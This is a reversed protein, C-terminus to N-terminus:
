PAEGAANPPVEVGARARWDFCRMAVGRRTPCDSFRPDPLACVAPAGAKSDGPVHGQGQCWLLVYHYAGDDGRHHVYQAEDWILLSPVLWRGSVPDTAGAESLVEIDGLTYAMTRDRSLPDMTVVRMIREVNPDTLSPDRAALDPRELEPTGCAGALALGGLFVTTSLQARIM